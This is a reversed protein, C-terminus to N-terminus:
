FFVLVPKSKQRYMKASNNQPKPRLDVASGQYFLTKHKLNISTFRCKMFRVWMSIEYVTNRFKDPRSFPLFQIIVSIRRYNIFRLYIELDFLFIFNIRIFM